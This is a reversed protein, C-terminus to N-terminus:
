NEANYREGGPGFHEHEHKTKNMVCKENHEEVSRERVGGWRGAKLRKQSKQDGGNGGQKAVREM